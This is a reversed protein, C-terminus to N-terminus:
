SIARIEVRETSGDHEWELVATEGAALTGTDGLLTVGSASWTIAGSGGNRVKLEETASTDSSSLRSPVTYTAAPGTNVLKSGAEFNAANLTQAGSLAGYKRNRYGFVSQGNCDLPGVLFQEATTDGRLEITNTARVQWEVTGSAPVVWAFGDDAVGNISVGSGAVRRLTLTNAPPATFRGHAAPDASLGAPFEIIHDQAGTFFRHISYADAVTFPSASYDGSDEIPLLFGASLKPATVAADALKPATVAADALKPATVAAALIKDSDVADSAIKASTVAAGALKATLVADDAIKDASIAAAVIKGSDVANAAIKASTVAGDVLKVTSVAGAAIKDGTVAAAAIKGSDVANSDIKPSTVAANALKATAVAGDAIRDSSVAASAINANGVAAPGIKASNVANDALKATSVAGDAIANAGILAFEVATESLNARLFRGGQALYSNPTDTLDILSGPVVAITGGSIAVHSGALVEGPTGSVGFGVLTNATGHALKATTVANDALEATDVAAAAIKGVTISAAALKDSIVVGDALKATTVAADALAAGGVAGDALKAMTIAAPAIDESQVIDKSALAGSDTVDVLLHQHGFDTKGTQLAEIEDKASQLNARLDAKVAPAGDVPKTPDIASTVKSQEM